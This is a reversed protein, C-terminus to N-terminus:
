FIIIMKINYLMISVELVIMFCEFLLALGNSKRSCIVSFILFVVSAFNLILSLVFHGYNFFLILWLLRLTYSIMVDTIAKKVNQDCPKRSLYLVSVTFGTFLFFVLSILYCVFLRFGGGPVIRFAGIILSVNLVSIVILGIVAFLAGVLLFVVIRNKLKKLENKLSTVITLM